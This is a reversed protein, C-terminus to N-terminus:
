TSRNEYPRAGAAHVADRDWIMNTLQMQEAVIVVGSASGHLTSCILVVLRKTSRNRGVVALIPIVEYFRKPGSLQIAYVPRVPAKCKELREAV